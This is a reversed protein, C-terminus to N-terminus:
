IDIQGSLQQLKIFVFEAPKLPAFGVVINVVGQNIDTQNTTERDCKVLYAERPTTGQFAGQRFLNHMFAGVNLRIQAWLPEDNPEFVVWKTGQFLSEEIFLATRRVAVYKNDTDALQDAGRLTRAGWVVRGTVPFQRLCNIGLPNLIGNEDDTLNVQLGQTGNLSADLGAPSKWVGRSNDTRAMIGAIMGCPVFTQMQGDLLPDAQRIRPFYLVANKAEDGNIGLTTLRQDPNTIATDNSTGWTVVPDVLLMARKKGCLQAAQQYVTPDTDTDREAPPICLLNFDTGLLANIGTKAANSGIYQAAQLPAGDSPPLIEFPNPDPAPTPTADPRDAPAPEQVQVLTSTKLKKGFFDASTDDISVDTFTEKVVGDLQVTLTFLKADGANQTVSASLKKGQNAGQSAESTAELVLSKNTGTTSPLTIISPDPLASDLVHYPATGIPNLTENPRETVPGQVQVLKSTKLIDGVFNAGPDISMDTFTEKVDGDQITLTFLKAVAANHKVSVNLRSGRSVLNAPVLILEKGATATPLTINSVTEIPRTAPINTEDVVMLASTETLVRVVYRADGKNISVNLFTETAGGKQRITLNFFDAARPLNEKAERTAHNVSASLAKGWNGPSIAKLVLPQGTADAATLLSINVPAAGNAVRVIVARSGGNQYFDRVAYSMMSDAQLGGFRREYDGFSNITVPTDILGRGARGIFATVSTAVGTISRVGSPIEEVYVGPYTPQIPM